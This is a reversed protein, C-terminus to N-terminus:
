KIPLGAKEDANLGAPKGDGDRSPNSKGQCATRSSRNQFIHCRFIPIVAQRAEDNEPEDIHADLYIQNDLLANQELYHLLFAAWGWGPEGDPVDALWGAPLHNHVDHFNHMAVGINRVHNSCQTRRASERAYQIAPLLLAVLVGIIAIVVLLEVLTFAHRSRM